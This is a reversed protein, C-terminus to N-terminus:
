SREALDPGAIKNHKLRKNQQVTNINKEVTGRQDFILMEINPSLEWL